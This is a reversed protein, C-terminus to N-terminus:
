GGNKASTSDPVSKIKNKEMWEVVEGNHRYTEASNHDLVVNGKKDRVILRNGERGKGPWRLRSGAIQRDTNCYGRQIVATFRGDANIIGLLKKLRPARTM